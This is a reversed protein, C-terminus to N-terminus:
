RMLNIYIKGVYEEVMRHTNFYPGITAISNKMLKIWDEKRHYYTPMITYFLKNYIDEADQGDDSPSLDQWGPKPGIGWGNFGEIGGELWWGDWTSFNLVGNMGAKMGSTGCAELPRRPNNLWVDCGAVLLKAMDIDYNELFAIKLKHTRRKVYASKELIHRIIGKGGEDKPHAKGAFVIQLGEYHEAIQILREINRLILDNRKYSTIRRAVGLTLLDSSFSADTTRNILNVLQKKIREHTEYLLHSPLSYVGQLLHPNNEWRPIYQDLLEKLEEHIWRSHHVGNTIYDIGEHEPFIDRSVFMHKYSVGNVYGSHKLALRSLNIHGDEGEEEWNMHDYSKLEEKVMGVPFRDHGVPVPTHTTFVCRKRVEELSGYEKLLEVVLFASHSENMHYVHPRYGLAKLVKYGGIGLLIEQRLRHIGDGLYLRHNLRRVDPDNGELDADLFLVRVEGKSRVWYEWCTVKQKKDGFPVELSLNLKKLHKTYDWHTDQEIQEGAPNIKQHLYGGKYLLTVAVAPVGLDAFSMVTDGALLGLGGSYTAIHANLGIEMVFYAIM